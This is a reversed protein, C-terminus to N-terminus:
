APRVAGSLDRRVGRPDGLQRYTLTYGDPAARVVRGVASRAAPARRRERRDGAPRAHRAYAGGAHAGAHRDAGGPPLPVVITIVRSPFSQAHAGHKGHRAVLAFVFLRTFLQKMAGQHRSERIIAGWKDMESKLYVAFGEPTQREPPPIETGQDMIRQRVDGSRGHSVSLANSLKAVIDKPTGKPAYAGLWHSLRPRACRGRRRDAIGAGRVMAEESDGCLGQHPRGSVQGLSNAALDLMIDVHGAVIDQLAPAGGRYPVLPHPHRDVQQFYYGCVQAGGGAGVTAATVKGSNAKLCAILEKVDKPPFNKRAIVM